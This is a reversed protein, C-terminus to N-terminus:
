EWFLHDLEGDYIGDFDPLVELNDDLFPLIYTMNVGVCTRLSDAIAERDGLLGEANTREVYRFILTCTALEFSQSGSTDTDLLVTTGDPRTRPEHPPGERHRAEHVLSAFTDAGPAAGQNNSDIITREYERSYSMDAPRQIVVTEFGGPNNRHMYHFLLRGLEVEGTRRSEDEMAEIFADSLFRSPTLDDVVGLDFLFPYRLGGAVVSLPAYSGEHTMGLLLNNRGDPLDPSVEEFAEIDFAMTDAMIDLCHLSPYTPVLPLVRDRDRPDPFSHREYVGWQEVHERWSCARDVRDYPSTCATLLLALLM